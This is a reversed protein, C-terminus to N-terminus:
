RRRRRMREHVVAEAAEAVHRQYTASQKRMMSISAKFEKPLLGVAKAAVRYREIADEDIRQPRPM